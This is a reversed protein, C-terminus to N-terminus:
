NYDFIYISVGYNELHDIVEDMNELTRGHGNGRPCDNCHAFHRYGTKVDIDHCGRVHDILHEASAGTRSGFGCSCEYWMDEEMWVPKRMVVYM